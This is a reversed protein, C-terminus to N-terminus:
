GRPRAAAQGYPKSGQIQRLLELLRMSAAERAGPAGFRIWNYLETFEWVRSALDTPPIHSAFELPTQTQSKHYGFRTLWKLVQRYVLTAESVDLAQSEGRRLLARLRLWDRLHRGRWALLVLGALIIGAWRLTPSALARAGAQNITTTLERRWQRLQQQWTLRGRLLDRSLDRVESALRWQRLADYNIVWEDWWLAFADFYHQVTTWWTATGVENPDSPTPDFAVWGLEPFFVEVWTHADSARVIYNESVENYEGTQFGNVLRAPIGLTRLMITMATAFYECHGRRREFLFSSIPDAEPEAPLELTYGYATRLFHELAAARDYASRAPATV